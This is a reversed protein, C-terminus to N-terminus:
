HSSIKYQTLKLRNKITMIEIETLEKASKLMSWAVYLVRKPKRTNM